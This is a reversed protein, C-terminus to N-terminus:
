DRFLFGTRTGSGVQLEVTKPHTHQTPDMPVLIGLHNVAGFNHFITRGKLMCTLIHFGENSKSM